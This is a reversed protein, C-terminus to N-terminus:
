FTGFKNLVPDTQMDNSMFPHAILIVFLPQHGQWYPNVIGALVLSIVTTLILLTQWSQEHLFRIVANRLLLLIFIVFAGGGGLLGYAGLNDLLSSHGGVYESSRTSGGGMGFIPSEWFSKISGEDLSWRSATLDKGSYGGSTPDNIFNKIRNYSDSFLPNNPIMLYGLYIISILFIVIICGMRKKMFLSALVVIIMVSIVILSLPTAFSSISASVLILISCTPLVLRLIGTEKFSRWFFIPLLIACSAFYSQDGYIWGGGLEHWMQRAIGPNFYLQQTTFISQIGLAIITAIQFYRACTDDSIFAFAFFTGLILIIPTILLRWDALGNGGVLINIILSIGYWLLFYVLLKNKVIVKSLRQMAPAFSNEFRGVFISLVLLILVSIPAHLYVGLIPTALIIFALMYLRFFWTKSLM